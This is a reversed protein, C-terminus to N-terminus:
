HLQCRFKSISISLLITAFLILAIANVWLVELGVGKVLIGRIITAYHRVPNFLSIYQFFVPMTEIPSFVGSLLTLPLSVFFSTIYAQQQTRSVTALMTGIAINVLIYVASLGLFLLLNGRFPLDFLLLAICLILLLDGMLLIFLPVIKALLIEWGKAPTMLLQELTGKDKERIITASSILSTIVALALGFVGPVFFWSSKLDPNYLFTTQPEILPPPQNPELQHSYQRLLKKIYGQAIVAQNADVGDVLIRLNIPQNHSLNQQFNDPIILGVTLNGLQIQETLKQDNFFYNEATFINNETLTSVLVESQYTNAYDLVGLKLHSVDPNLALGYLFVRLVTPFILLFIIKKDRLLQIIEKITLARFQDSFLTQLLKM